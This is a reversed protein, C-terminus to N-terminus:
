CVIIDDTSAGNSRNIQKKIMTIYYVVFKM